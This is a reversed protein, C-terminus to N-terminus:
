RARRARRRTALRHTHTHTHAHTHTHTRTHALMSDKSSAACKCVPGTVTGSATSTTSSKVLKVKGAKSRSCAVVVLLQVVLRADVKSAKSRSYWQRAEARAYLTLGSLM